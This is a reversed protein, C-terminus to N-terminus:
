CGGLADIRRHLEYEVMPQRGLTVRPRLDGRHHRSQDTTFCADRLRGNGAIQDVIVAVHHRPPNPVAIGAPFEDLIAPM